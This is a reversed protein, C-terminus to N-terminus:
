QGPIYRYEDDPVDEHFGSPGYMCFAINVAERSPHFVTLADCMKKASAPSIHVNRVDTTGITEYWETIATFGKEEFSDYPIPGSKIITKKAM